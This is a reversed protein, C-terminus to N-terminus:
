RVHVDRMWERLEGPATVEITDGDIARLLGYRDDRLNVRQLAFQLDEEVKKRTETLIKEVAQQIEIGQAEIGEKGLLSALLQQLRRIEACLSEIEEFTSRKM